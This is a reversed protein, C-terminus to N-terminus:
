LNSRLDQRRFIVMDKGVVPSRAIINGKPDIAELRSFDLEKSRELMQAALKDQESSPLDYWDDGLTVVLNSGGFNPQISQILGDAVRDSIEEVQKQISAVLIEEPTLQAILTLASEPPTDGKVPQPATLESPIAIKPEVEIPPSPEDTLSPNASPTTAIPTEPESAPSTTVASPEPATPSPIATVAPVEPAPVPSTTVVPLETGPTPAVAIETPKASFLSSTTLVLVVVIGAMIGTLASNSLKGSLNAPLVSRIKGLVSGWGNQLPEWWSAETTTTSEAELQAIAGEIVGITGRLLKITQIKVAAQFSNTKPKREPSPSKQSNSPEQSM